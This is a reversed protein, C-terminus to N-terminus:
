DPDADLERWGSDILEFARRKTGVASAESM